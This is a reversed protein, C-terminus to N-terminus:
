PRATIAIALSTISTGQVTPPQLMAVRLLVLSSSLPEPPRGIQARMVAGHAYETVDKSSQRWFAQQQEKLERAKREREDRAAKFLERLGLQYPQLARREASGEPYDKAAAAIDKNAQTELAFYIEREAVLKQYDIEQLAPTATLQATSILTQEQVTASVKSASQYLLFGAASTVIALALTMSLTFRAWIPLGGSGKDEDKTRRRTAM